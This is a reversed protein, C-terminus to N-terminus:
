ISQLARLIDVLGHGQFYRERGLDTATDCLIGKVKEPRGVLEGHRAMLMAAAGSVHPAAMSTGDKVEECEDPTPGLIKEGPAVLDPKLRGDGTPGRSSFYSVGYEHPRKRHTSGVTIVKEANGPDTISVSEFSDSLSVNEGNAFNFGRNGAAAVMVMGLAVSENCEKCIPTQGCAFRRVEHVLSLSLNAGHVKLYGAQENMWRLYQVAAILEFEDTLGKENFVRVDILNIDPCIGRMKRTRQSLPFEEENEFDEIWDAGLIGAVHTGHDNSPPTPNEVSVINEFDRWNIDKGSAIRRKLRDVYNRAEMKDTFTLAKPNQKNSLNLALNEFIRQKAEFRKRNRQDQSDRRQEEETSLVIPDNDLEDEFEDDFFPDEDEEGDIDIDLVSRLQTFDLTKVVRSKTIDRVSLKSAREKDEANSNANNKDTTDLSDSDKEAQEKKWKEKRLEEEHDKTNLNFAPHNGDIGSDIVAWTIDRCSINFLLKAADAKVTISSNEVALNVPRNRTISWILGPTKYGQNWEKFIDLFSTAIFKRNEYAQEFNLGNNKIRDLQELQTELLNPDTHNRAQFDNYLGFPSQISNAKNKNGKWIKKLDDHTGKPLIDKGTSFQFYIIGVIRILWIFDSPIDSVFKRYSKKIKRKKISELEHWFANNAHQFDIERRMLMLATTLANLTTVDHIDQPPFNQFDAITEREDANIKVARLYKEELRSLLKINNKWWATLPLVVRILEDFYVRVAIQGPIFSVRAPKRQFGSQRTQTGRFIRLRDRLAKASQASSKSHTVSLILEQQSRPEFLFASWVTPLIPSDQTYRTGGPTEFLLDNLFTHLPASTPM